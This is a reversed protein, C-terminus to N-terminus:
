LLIWELKLCFRELYDVGRRFELRFSYKIDNFEVVHMLLYPKYPLTKLVQWPIQDVLYLLM